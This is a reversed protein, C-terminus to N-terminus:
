VADEGTRKRRLTEVDGSRFYRLTQKGRQEVKAPTLEGRNVLRWVVTTSVGLKGATAPVSLLEEVRLVGERNINHVTVFMHVSYVGPLWKDIGWNEAM